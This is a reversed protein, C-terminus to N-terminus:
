RHAVLKSAMPMCNVGEVFRVINDADHRSGTVVTISLDREEIVPLDQM